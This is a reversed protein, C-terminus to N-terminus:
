SLVGHNGNVEQIVVNDITGSWRTGGSGSYFYINENAGAVLYFIITGDVQTRGRVNATISGSHAEGLMLILPNGNTTSIDVTIKYLAGQTLGSTAVYATNFTDETDRRLKGDSISWGTELTWGSDSSMDGGVMVDSGLTDGDGHHNDFVYQTTETSETTDDIDYSTDLNWWSVLNTKESSSLGAYNKWMISKIQAPTLVSTWVGLNCLYGNFELTVDNSAGITTETSTLTIAADHTGGSDTDDVGNLYTYQRNNTDDQIFTLYNWGETLITAGHTYDDGGGSTTFKMYMKEAASVYCFMLDTGDHSGLIVKDAATPIVFAWCSVTFDGDFTSGPLGTPIENSQSADFFAAGDSVPVVAGSDYKHKLVLNDTIIGPTVLSTKGLKNGLGLM